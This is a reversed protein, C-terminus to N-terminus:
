LEVDHKMTATVLRPHALFEEIKRLAEELETLGGHKFAEAVESDSISKNTFELASRAEAIFDSSARQSEVTLVPEPEVYPTKMELPELGPFAKWIPALVNTNAYGMFLGVLRSYAQVIGLEENTKVTRLSECVSSAKQFRFAIEQALKADMM